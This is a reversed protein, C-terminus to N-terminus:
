LGELDLKLRIKELEILTNEVKKFNLINSYKKSKINKYLINLLNEVFVIDELSKIINREIITTTVKNEILGLCNCIKIIESALEEKNM